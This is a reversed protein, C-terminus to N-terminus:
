IEPTIDGETIPKPEKPVFAVGTSVTEAPAINKLVAPPEPEFEDIDDQLANKEMNKSMEIQKLLVNKVRGLFVNRYAPPFLYAMVANYYGGPGAAVSVCVREVPVFVGNQEVGIATEITLRKRKLDINIQGEPDFKDLPLSAEVRLDEM